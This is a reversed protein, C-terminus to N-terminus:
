QNKVVIRNYVRATLMYIILYLLVFVATVSVTCGVILRTNYLEFMSLLKKVIHFAVAEHVIATVLPILFVIRIQTYITGRIDRADMGVKKLVLFRGADEYGESVQKFYVIMILACLFLVGLFGGM